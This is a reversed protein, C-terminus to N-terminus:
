PVCEWACRVQLKLTLLTHLDQFQKMQRKNPDHNEKVWRQQERLVKQNEAEVRIQDELMDRYCSYSGGGLM